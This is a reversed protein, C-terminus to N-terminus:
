IFGHYGLNQNQFNFLHLVSFTHSFSNLESFNDFRYGEKQLCLNPRLMEARSKMEKNASKLDPAKLLMVVLTLPSDFGKPSHEAIGQKTQLDWKDFLHRNIKLIKKTITLKNQRFSSFM